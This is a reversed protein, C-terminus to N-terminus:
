FGSSMKISSQNIKLWCFFIKLMDYKRLCKKKKQLNSINKNKALNKIEPIKKSHVRWWVLFVYEIDEAVNMTLM